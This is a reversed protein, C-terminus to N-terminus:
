TGFLDALMSPALTRWTGDDHGGPTVHQEVPVGRDLLRRVLLASADRIWPYDSGGWGVSVTLGTIPANLALELPDREARSETPPYIFVRDEITGSFIAPSLVGVGGFLDPHRFALRLAAYGGMSLGGVFRDAPSAVGPFWRAVAPLVDTLLYREYDGHAYGDGTPPSDIGYSDDILVSVTAPRDIAGTAALSGAIAGVGVGDFWQHEDAGRGHFLILVRRVAAATANPPLWVDAPMTRGLARSEISKGTVNPEAAPVGRCAALSAVLSAALSVLAIGVSCSRRGIGSVVFPRVAAGSRPSGSASGSGPVRRPLSGGTREDGYRYTASGPAQCRWKHRYAVGVRM